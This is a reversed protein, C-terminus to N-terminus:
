NRMAQHRCVDGSTGGHVSCAIDFPTACVSHACSLTQVCAERISALNYERPLSLAAQVKEKAGFIGACEPRTLRACATVTQGRENQVINPM